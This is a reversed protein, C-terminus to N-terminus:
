SDYMGGSLLIERETTDLRRETSQLEITSPENAQLRAVDTSTAGACRHM